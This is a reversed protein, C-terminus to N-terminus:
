RKTYSLSCYHNIESLLTGLSKIIFCVRCKRSFNYFNITLIDYFNGKNSLEMNIVKRLLFFFLSFTETRLVVDAIQLHGSNLSTQKQRQRPPKVTM